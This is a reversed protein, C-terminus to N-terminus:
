EKNNILIILDKIMNYQKDIMEQQKNIMEQQKDVKENLEQIAGVCIPTLKSYDISQMQEPDDKVGSVSIPIIEQLEHALFGDIYCNCCSEDLADAIFRYNKPQLKMLRELPNKIPVVDQKLRYDSSTNFAVTSASAMSISGIESLNNMFKKYRYTVLFSSKNCQMTFDTKLISSATDTVWWYGSVNNISLGVDGTTYTQIYAYKSLVSATADLAPHMFAVYNAVFDMSQISPNIFLNQIRIKNTFTNASVASFTKSLISGSTSQINGSGSNVSTCTIAGTSISTSTIVGTLNNLTIVAANVADYWIWTWYTKIFKNSWDSNIIYGSVNNISIGFNGDNFPIIGMYKSFVTLVDTIYPFGVYYARIDISGNSTNFYRNDLHIKNSGTLANILITTLSTTASLTSSTIAGTTQITGSGSNVSTCFISSVNVTTGVIERFSVDGDSDITWKYINGLGVSFVGLTGTNTFRLASGLHFNDTFIEFPVSSNPDIVVISYGSFQNNYWKWIYETRISTTLFDSYMIRPTINNIEMVFNGDSLPKIGMYKSLTTLSQTIYPFCVYHGRIDISGNSINFYRNDLEIKNSGTSANILNTTFSTTGTISGGSINGTTQITGSGCNLSTFTSAGGGTIKWITTSLEILGLEDSITYYLKKIGGATGFLQLRYTPATLLPTIILCDNNLENKCNVNANTILNSLFTKIGTISQDTLLDVYLGSSGYSSIGFINKGTKFNNM